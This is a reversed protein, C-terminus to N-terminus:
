EAIAIATGSRRPTRTARGLLYGQGFRVGLTTLAAAEAHTEIGEAVLICEAEEAFHVMGAVLSRRASDADIGRVLSRDLKVAFPSLEAIHRLSSYGAGADDIALRVRPLRELALRLRRYDAIATHETIELVVNHGASALISRLPEEALILEPSVNVDLYADSPLRRAARIAADLTVAELELGIGALAADRFVAEARLGDDFRTLAEYGVTCHNALAVIPQFVPHFRRGDILSRIRALAEVRRRREVIGPGLLVTAIAAFEGLAPLRESLRISDVGPAGVVLLGVLDDEHVLPVYALARAGAAAMAARQPDADSPTVDEIWPGSRASDRLLRESAAPLRGRLAPSAYGAIQSALVAVQEDAEWALLFAHGFGARGIEACVSEATEEVTDRPSLSHLADVVLEREHRLRELRAEVARQETVDRAVVSAGAVSGDPGHLPSVILSLTVPRGDKRLRAVELPGVPTGSAITALNRRVGLHEAAPALLLVSKGVIEAAPWGYIREAAANWTTITGDLTNAFIADDASEVIAALRDRAEDSEREASIDEIAADYWRVRGDDARVVRTRVRAWMTAGDFRRLRVESTAQGAAELERVVTAHRRPGAFLASAPTALLASRSPYGLMAVCAENAETLRGDPTARALGVPVESVLEEYRRSATRAARQVRWTVVIVLGSAIAVSAVTAVPRSSGPLLATRPITEFAEPLAAEAVSLVAVVLLRMGELRPLVILFAVIPALAVADNGAYVITLVPVVAYLSSAAVFSATRTRARRELHAAAGLMAALIALTPSGVLQRQGGRAAIAAEVAAAAGAVVAPILFLPIAPM